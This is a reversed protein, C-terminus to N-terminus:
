NPFTTSYFHFNASIYISLYFYLYEWFMSLYQLLTNNCWQLGYM